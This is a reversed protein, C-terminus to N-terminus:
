DIAGPLAGTNVVEAAIDRLKRNSQQSTRVLVQFAQEPDLDYRTMVVGVATGTTRNTQLAHRLQGVTTEAEGIALDRLQNM